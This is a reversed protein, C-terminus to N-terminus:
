NRGFFLSNERIAVRTPEYDSDDGPLFGDFRLAKLAKKNHIKLLTRRLAAYLRDDLDARVVWPRTANSYKALARIPVGRSVLKAFTTEELAGADFLRAGVAMGVKDHRGLYEYRKLDKAYIGARLLTLQAFYRGLTSRKSGFAFTKGRLQRIDTLNSDSPVAIIGDFSKKGNKKEMALIRIGPDRSKVMVYSAPGLRMFDFEGAVLHDIGAKYSRVVQLRIEVEEGLIDGALKSILNLAPRLQTVMASPKDSSYVGFVLSVRAVADAPPLQAAILALFVGLRAATWRDFWGWRCKRCSLDGHSRSVFSDVM